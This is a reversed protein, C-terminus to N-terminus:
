EVSAAHSADFTDRLPIKPILAFVVLAIVLVPITCRIAITISDAFAHIVHGQVPQPLAHIVSPKGRLASTDPLAAMEDPGVYRPILTNLRNQFVAGLGASGVVGGLTRIFSLGATAVGLDRYDVANQVIITLSPGIQGMGLGAIALRFCVDWKSTHADMTGLLVAGVGLLTVGIIPFPKYTRYKAIMRGSVISALTIVFANPATLLGSVTASTRDVVQLFLTTWTGVGYMGMGIVFGGILSTRTVKNRFLSMPLIPEVARLEIRVFAVTAVAAFVFLGITTVSGWGKEEGSWLLALVVPSIAASLAVAGAIDVSRRTPTRAIHLKRHVLAMSAVGIPINIFFVWRWNLHDVFFGGALPGFLTAFAFAAAIYGQYRAREAPPLIDGVIAMPLSLLGGAGIGQLARFAVLQPMNQAAAALVSAALFVVITLQFTQKRGYLDSLKGIIPTAICQTLLYAVGIWPAQSQNGLEGVITPMATSVITGDMAALFMGTMVAMMVVHIERPTLGSGGLRQETQM